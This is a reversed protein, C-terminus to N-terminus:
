LTHFRKVMYFSALVLWCGVFCLSCIGAWFRARERERRQNRAEPGPPEARGQVRQWWAQLKKQMSEPLVEVKEAPIDKQVAEAKPVERAKDVIAMAKPEEAGQRGLELVETKVPQAIPAPHPPCPAPAKNWLPMEEPLNFTAPPRLVLAPVTKAPAANPPSIKDLPRPVLGEVPKAPPRGVPCAKVPVQAPAKGSGKPNAKASAQAEQQFLFFIFQPSESFKQERPDSWEPTHTYLSDDLICSPKM